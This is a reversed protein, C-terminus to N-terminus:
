IQLRFAHLCTNCQWQTIRLHLVSGSAPLVHSPAFHSKFAKQYQVNWTDVKGSMLFLLWSQLRLAEPLVSRCASGSCFLSFFTSFLSFQRM